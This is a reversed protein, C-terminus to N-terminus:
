GFTQFVRCDLKVWFLLTLLTIKASIDVTAESLPAVNM